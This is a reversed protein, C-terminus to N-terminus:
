KNIILGRYINILKKAVAESNLGLGIIDNRSNTRRNSELVSDIKEAFDITNLKAIFNGNSNEILWKTDGVESTVVPLNCAMAEKVLNPSGELYSTFALVDAANLYKVVTEHEVPFPSLIEVNKYNINKLTEMLLKFNKRPNSKDGLFLIYKTDNRLGLERKTEEYDLISFKNLNVGNPLIVCKKKLYIYDELNKSKVIIKALFPQILKALIINIYSSPIRKGNVDVDGYTDAGMFSAVIKKGSITLLAVWASLVYHAHILDYHGEKIKKRLTPINKIYGLIGKGKIPFFDVNVGSVILDEGQSKIFPAIEFKESNGSSVFLVKM